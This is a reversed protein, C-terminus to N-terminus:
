SPLVMFFIMREVPWNWFLRLSGSLSKGVHVSGVVGGLVRGM